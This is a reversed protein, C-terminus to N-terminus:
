LINGEGPSYSQSVVADCTITQCHVLATFTAAGADVRVTPAEILMPGSSKLTVRNGNIELSSELAVIREELEEVRDELKHFRTDTQGSLSAPDGHPHKKKM